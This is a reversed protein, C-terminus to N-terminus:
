FTGVKIHLTINNLELIKYTKFVTIVEQTVINRSKDCINLIKM